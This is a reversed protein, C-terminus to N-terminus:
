HKDVEKLFKLGKVQTNNSLKSIKHLDIKGIFSIMVFEDAGGVLMLLESIVGGSEKTWFRVNEGDSRVSMLLDYEATNVKTIAEKYYPRGDQGDLTLIRIGRLDQFVGKIENAQPDNLDLKSLMQFAKPTIYVVTFKEDDLYKDFYKSIADDQAVLSLSSSVVLCVLILFKEM